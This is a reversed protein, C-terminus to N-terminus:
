RKKNTWTDTFMMLIGGVFVAIALGAASINMWDLTEM